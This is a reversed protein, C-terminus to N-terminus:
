RMVDDQNALTASTKVPVASDSLTYQLRLTRRLRELTMVPLGTADKQIEGTIPDKATTMRMKGTESDVVPETKGYIGSIYVTFGEAKQGYEAPWIIVSDRASDVGPEIPGPLERLPLTRANGCHKLIADHIEQPVPKMCDHVIGNGTVVQIAPALLHAENECNQIRFPMYWYWQPPGNKLTIPVAKPGNTTFKLGWDNNSASSSAASPDEKPPTSILPIGWSPSSLPPHSQEKNLKIVELTKSKPLEQPKPTNKKNHHDAAHAGTFTALGLAAAAAHRIISTSNTMM